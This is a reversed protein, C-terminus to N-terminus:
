DVTTLRRARRRRAVAAALGGGVLLLTAPEPVPTQNAFSYHVNAVEAAGDQLEPYFRITAIGSGVLSRTFLPTGGRSEDLYAALNGAFTFPLSGIVGAGAPVSGSDFDFRGTWYVNEYTAGDLVASGHGFDGPLLVADMSIPTGTACRGCEWFPLITGLGTGRLSFGSGTLLWDGPDDFSVVYHGGAVQVPDASASGSLLLVTASALAATLWARRRSAPRGYTSRASGLMDLNRACTTREPM